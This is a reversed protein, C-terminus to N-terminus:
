KHGHKKPMFTYGYPTESKRGASELYLPIGTPHKMRVAWAKQAPGLKVPTLIGAPYKM